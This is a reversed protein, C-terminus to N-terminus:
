RYRYRIRGGSARVDVIEYDVGKEELVKLLGSSGDDTCVVVSSLGSRAAEASAAAVGYFCTPELGAKRLAALAEIGVAGVFRRGGAAGKVKELDTRKSGGREIGPMRLITVKGVELSVIGDINTVGVDEGRKASSVAVGIAEADAHATALLVGDRMVLGVKQGETIDCGAIAASVSVSTIARRVSNSYSQWEMLGKILWEVGEPTVKYKSRGKSVLWGDRVLERFYDSVAQPSLELRAAIDRQQVDPQNAAVEVLIQFKTALNTSRFLSSM